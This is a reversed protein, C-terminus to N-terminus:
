RQFFSVEFAATSNIFAAMFYILIFFLVIKRKTFNSHKFPQCVALYREAAITVLSWVAVLSYNYLKISFLFAKILVLTKNRINCLLVSFIYFKYVNFSMKHSRDNYLMKNFNISYHRAIFM